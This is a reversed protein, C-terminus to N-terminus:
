KIEIRKKPEQKKEKPVTVHLVGNKLEADIDKEDIDGVYFSRSSSGFYRERRIYGYEDDKEESESGHKAEITLYGNNLDLSINKKEVGPMEVQLTYNKENEKIDCRM